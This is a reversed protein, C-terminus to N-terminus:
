PTGGCPVKLRAGVRILNANSIGNQRMLTGITTHYNAAISALMDGSRVTYYCGAVSTAQRALDYVGPTATIPGPTPTITPTPSPGPTPSFLATPTHTPAPAAHYTSAAGLGFGVALGFVAALMWLWRGCGSRPPEHEILTPDEGPKLIHAKM